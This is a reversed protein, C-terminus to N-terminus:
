LNIFELMTNYFPSDNKSLIGVHLKQKLNKFKKLSNQLSPLVLSVNETNTEEPSVYLLAVKAENDDSAIRVLHRYYTYLTFRSNRLERPTHKKSKFRRLIDCLKRHTKYKQLSVQIFVLWQTGKADELHGVCDIIPHSTRLEYLTNVKLDSKCESYLSIVSAISFAITELRSEQISVVSVCLQASKKLHQYFLAEFWYGAFTAEKKCVEGILSNQSQTVFETIVNLFLQGFTPFNLKLTMSTEEQVLEQDEPEEMELEQDEPEDEELEDKELEEVKPQEELITVHNKFLWTKEYEDVERTTLTDGRYAYYIFKRSTEIGQMKMFRAVSQSEDKLGINDALFREVLLNVKSEFMAVSFDSALHSLLYPNTGSIHKIAEFTVGKISSRRNVYEKAEEETFCKFTIRYGSSMFKAFRENQRSDQLDAYVASSSVAYVSILKKMFLFPMFARLRDPSLSQIHSLDVFLYLKKHKVFEKILMLVGQSLDTDLLKLIDTRQEETIDDNHKEIFRNLCEPFLVPDFTCPTIYLCDFNKHLIMFIVAVMLSKGCGKPGVVVIKSRQAAIAERVAQFNSTFITYDPLINNACNDVYSILDTDESIEHCNKIDGLKAFNQLESSFM